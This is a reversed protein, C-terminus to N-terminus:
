RFCVQFDSAAYIEKVRFARHVNVALKKGGCLKHLEVFLVLENGKIVSAACYDILVEEQAQLPKQSFLLFVSAVPNGEKVQRKDIEEYIRLHLIGRLSGPPLKERTEISNRM